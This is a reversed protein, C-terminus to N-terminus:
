YKLAIRGVANVLVPNEWLGNVRGFAVDLDVHDFLVIGGGVSWSFHEESSFSLGTSWRWLGLRWEAGAGIRPTLPNGVAEALGQAYEIAATSPMLGVPFEDELSLALHLRTPLSTAYAGIPVSEGSYQKLSDVDEFLGGTRITDVRHVSRIAPSVDWNINGIDTISLGATLTRRGFPIMKMLGIDIGIGSGVGKPFLTFLASTPLTTADFRGGNATQVDYDVATQIQTGTIPNSGLSITSLRKGDVTVHGLGQVYKVAIGAGFDLVGNDDVPAYGYTLAYENFWLGEGSLPSRLLLPFANGSVAVNHAISDLGPSLTYRAAGRQMIHAAITHDTGLPLVVAAIMGETRVTLGALDVADVLYGKDTAPISVDLRALLQDLDASTFRSTTAHGLGFIPFVPGFPYLTFTVNQAGRGILAPNLGLADLNQASAAGAAGMGAVRPAGLETAGLPAALLFICAAVLCPFAVRMLAPVRARGPILFM